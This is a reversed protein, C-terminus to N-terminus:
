RLSRAESHPISGGSQALEIVWVLYGGFLHDLRCIDSGPRDAEGARAPGLNAHRKWLRSLIDLFLHIPRNRLGSGVNRPTANIRTSRAVRQPVSRDHARRLIPKPHPSHLRSTARAAPCLSFTATEVPM